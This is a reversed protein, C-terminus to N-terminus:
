SKIAAKVIMILARIRTAPDEISHAMLIYGELDNNSVSALTEVLSFGEAQDRSGYWREHADGPCALNVKRLVSFSDLNRSRSQNVAKIADKLTEDAILPDFRSYVSASALLVAAQAGQDSIATSMQRAEGLMQNALVQDKQRLAAGAIKVYLLARQERREVQAAYKQADYFNGAAIAANSLDYYFFQVVSDRLSVDKIQEAVKLARTYDKTHSITLAAQAYARDRECGDPLKESRDLDAQVRENIYFEPSQAQKAARSRNDLIYQLQKTIEQQLGAPTGLIAQQQLLRWDGVLDPRYRAAEGSLYTLAFLALGSLSESKPPTQSGAAQLTKQISQFAAGLFARALVPNPALDAIQRGGFGALRTPSNGAFGYSEGYGLPYGALWLLQNLPVVQASTLRTLYARYVKEAAPKDKEVLQLIFVGATDGSLGAPAGAEAILAAAKPDIKLLDMAAEISATTSNGSEARSGILRETLRKCLAADCRAALSLVQRAAANSNRPNSELNLAAELASMFMDASKTKDLAWYASAVEAM